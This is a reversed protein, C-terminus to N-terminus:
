QPIPGETALYLAGIPTMRALPVGLVNTNNRFTEELEFWKDNMLFRCIEVLRPSLMKCAIFGNALVTMHAGRLCWQGNADSTRVNFKVDGGDRWTLDIDKGGDLRGVIPKWPRNFYRCSAFEGACGKYFNEVRPRSRTQASTDSSLGRKEYEALTQNAIDDIWAADEASLEIRESPIFKSHFM